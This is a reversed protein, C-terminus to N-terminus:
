RRLLDEGEEEIFGYIRVNQCCSYQENDNCKILLHAISKELIDVKAAKAELAAIREELPNIISPLAAAVAEKVANSIVEKFADSCLYSQFEVNAMDSAKSRTKVGDAPM